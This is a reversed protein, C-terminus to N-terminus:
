RGIAHADHETCLPDHCQHEHHQHHAHGRAAREARRLDKVRQEMLHQLYAGSIVILRLITELNDDTVAIHGALARVIVESEHQVKEDSVTEGTEQVALMTELIRALLADTDPAGLDAAIHDIHRRLEKPRLGLIKPPLSAADCALLERTKM